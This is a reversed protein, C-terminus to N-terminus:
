MMNINPQFDLTNNCYEKYIRSYETKNPDEIRELTPPQQQQCKNENQIFHHNILYTSFAQKMGFAELKMNNSINFPFQIQSSSDSAEGVNM